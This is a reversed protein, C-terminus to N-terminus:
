SNHWKTSVNIASYSKEAIKQQVDFITMERPPVYFYFFAEFDHFARSIQKMVQYFLFKQKELSLM